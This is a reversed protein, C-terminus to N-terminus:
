LRRKYAGVKRDRKTEKTCKGKKIEQKGRREEEKTIKRREEECGRM